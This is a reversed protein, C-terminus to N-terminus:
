PGTVNCSARLAVVDFGHRENTQEACRKSEPCASCIPSRPHCGGSFESARCVAARGIHRRRFREHSDRLPALALRRKGDQEELMKGLVRQDYTIRDFWDALDRWFEGKLISPSRLHTLKPFVSRSLEEKSHYIRGRVFAAPDDVENEDCWDIFKQVTERSKKDSYRVQVLRKGHRYHILMRNYSDIVEAIRNM